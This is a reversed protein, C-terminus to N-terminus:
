GSTWPASRTMPSNAGIPASASLADGNAGRWSSNSVDSYTWISSSPSSDDSSSYPLKWRVAAARALSRGASVESM